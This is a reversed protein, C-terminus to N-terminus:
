QTRVTLVQPPTVDPPYIFDVKVERRVGSPLNITVLPTGQQGRRQVLHLYRVQQSAQDDVYSVRVTGRFFIREDQPNTFLLRNTGGEDKVPTQFAVTVTQSHPTSNFLPLTLNYEVGYNSHAFYATDSYRELMPASQIQGTGLTILHLTGLVYSFAQGPQPIALQNSNDDTITSQWTSGQSVGAVRGFVTPHKPPNLPTPISDRPEALEATVLLSEWEAVTPPRYGGRGDIPAKQALNAVYVEGDSRLRILTSRGNSAPAFNVPIPLNLLMRSEGPVLTLQAPFGDQRVGRLIDGMVRSGPGSYVTGDSNNVQDPLVIFPADP